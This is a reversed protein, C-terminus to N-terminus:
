GRPEYNVGKKFINSGLYGIAVITIIILAISILVEVNTVTSSILIRATMGFPASFPILSLIKLQMPKNFSFIVSLYSIPAIFLIIIQGINIDNINKALSSLSALVICYLIYALTVFVICYAATEVSINFKNLLSLKNDNIKIFIFASSLWLFIQTLCVCCTGLVKGMFLEMPKAATILTEMIRNSKEEMITFSVISSYGLVILLIIVSIGVHLLRKERLSASTDTINNNAKDENVLKIIKTKNQTTLYNLKESSLNLKQAKLKLLTSNLIKGVDNIIENNAIDMTYLKFTNLDESLVVAAIYKSNQIQMDKKISDLSKNLVKFSYKDNGNEFIKENVNFKSSNIVAIAKVGEKKLVLEKINQFNVLGAIVLIIFFTSFCVSKKKITQMYTFSFVNWFNRM